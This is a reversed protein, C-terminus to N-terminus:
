SPTQSGAPTKTPGASRWPLRPRRRAAQRIRVSDHVHESPDHGVPRPWRHWFLKSWGRFTGVSPAMADQPFRDKWGPPLTLGCSEAKELMWVLPINALPRATEVGLLHGGVDGHTGPFWVQELHGDFDDKTNWLVPAFAQRPENFALAHYGHQVSPGLQHDHFAHEAPSLHWLIPLRVGLARVTDWVGIMQIPASDHCHAARFTQAIDSDPDRRYHRWAQRVNRETACDGKLLGVRDIVGALSRVAYAGRSFGFLFIRDGPRYRSAIFGYANRIQQNIGVGAMVDIARRFGRWQIGQEYKLSVAANPAVESLLKFTIGANTEFGVELSSMTGDLIVVHTVPGRTPKALVSKPAPGFGVLRKLRDSM